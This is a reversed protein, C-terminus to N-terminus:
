LNEKIKNHHLLKNLTNSNKQAQIGEVGKKVLFTLFIIGSVQLVSLQDYWRFFIGALLVSAQMLGFELFLEVWLLNLELEQLLLLLANLIANIIFLQFITTIQVWSADYFAFIFLCFIILSVSTTLATNKIYQRM